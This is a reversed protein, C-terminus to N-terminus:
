LLDKEKQKFIETVILIDLQKSLELVMESNLGEEEIAKYLKKKLEEIKKNNM